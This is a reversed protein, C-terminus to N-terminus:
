KDFCVEVYDTLDPRYPSIYQCGENLDSVNSMSTVFSNGATPSLLVPRQSLVAKISDANREIDYKMFEATTYYRGLTEKVFINFQRMDGDFLADATEQERGRLHNTHVIYGEKEAEFTTFGNAHWELTKLGGQKDAMTTSASAALQYKAMLKEAEDVTTANTITAIYLLGTSVGKELALTSFIDITNTNTALNRSMNMVPHFPSPGSAILEPSKWTVSAGTVDISLDMNQGIIGNTFGTVTCGKVNKEGHLKFDSGEFLEVGMKKISHSALADEAWFALLVQQKTLGAESALGEVFSELRPFDNIFDESTKTATAIQESTFIKNIKDLYKNVFGAYYGKGEIKEYGQVIQQGGKFTLGEFEIIPLEAQIIINNPHARNGTLEVKVGNLSTVSASMDRAKDYIGADAGSFAPSSFIASLALAIISLKM